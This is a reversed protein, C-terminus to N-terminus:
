GNAADHLSLWNRICLIFDRGEGEWFHPIDRRSSEKEGTGHNGGTPTKKYIIDEYKLWHIM